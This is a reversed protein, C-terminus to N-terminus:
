DESPFIKRGTQSVYGYDDSEVLGKSKLWAQYENEGEFRRPVETAARENKLITQAVHYITRRDIPRISDRFMETAEALAMHITYEGAPNNMKEEVAKPADTQIMEPQKKKTRAM